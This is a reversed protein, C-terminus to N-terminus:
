IRVDKRVDGSQLDRIAQESNLIGGIMGFGSYYFIFTDSGTGGWLNDIVADYGGNLTDNDAEGYLADNGYEGYLGDNGAGGRLTDNGSGGYMQDNGADGYLQDNETGGSLYDNGTGGYLSDMGAEGYLYDNETGGSVYDNGSGGYLSDAGAEGYLYDNETGGELRDNGAGGYISDTGGEGYLYDNETGGELRDNGGGGYLSDTGAEGYLYDSENETGGELRDNGTGGYLSDVGGEGYLYDNEARGELLDHGTGGYLTDRGDGGILTDNGAHGKLTVPGSYASADIRDNGSGGNLEVQELGSFADTFGAGVLQTNNLTVQGSVYDLWKDGVTGHAGGILTDSGANGTLSDDGDGGDIVDNGAGGVLTDNGGKGRLTVKGSFPSFKFSDNGEGGALDVEEVSTLPETMNATSGSPLTLNLMLKSNAFEVTGSFTEELLDYGTGGEITDQGEGGTLLDNDAGGQLSDDGLGGILTDNGGGGILTADDQFPAVPEGDVLKDPDGGANLLDDGEGGDIEVKMKANSGFSIWVKDNGGLARVGAVEIGPLDVRTSTKRHGQTEVDVYAWPQGSEVDLKVVIQDMEGTADVVYTDEEGTSDTFNGEVNDTGGQVRDKGASHYITDSGTGGVLWDGDPSGHLHDDGEEGLVMDTFSTILGPMGNAAAALNVLRDQQEDIIEEAADLRAEAEGLEARQALTEQYLRELRDVVLEKGLLPANDIESLARALGALQRTRVQYLLGSITGLAEMQEILQLTATELTRVAEVGDDTIDTVHFDRIGDLLDIADLVGDLYGQQERVADEQVDIEAEIAGLESFTSSAGTGRSLEDEAYITDGAQGGLLFDAGAGGKILDEGAGGLVLDVGAGAELTDDGGGGILIDRNEGGILVDNGGIVSDETDGYMIEGLSGAGAELHDNGQGGYSVNAGANGHLRDDDDEGYLSDNGLGGHLTDNGTNGHLEDEGAGGYIVDHGAHGFILDDGASGVILDDGEGGSIEVRNVNFKGSAKIKDHGGLGDIRLLEIDRDNVDAPLTFRFSGQLEGAPGDFYSQDTAASDTTAFREVLFTPLLVGNADVLQQFRINDAEATGQVEIRDAHPGGFLQDTLEGGIQNLNVPFRDRGSQGYVTDAGAQGDLADDGDGGELRDEGDGGYLTDNGEDGLLWDNGLDGYLTDWGSGGELQDAGIGGYLEDEDDGGRLFDGGLEGFLFDRGADGHLHDGGRGGYLWDSETGGHIADVGTGGVLTDMGADGHLEDHDDGGDLSDDHKGGHLTDRGQGGVLTDNGDDGHLIDDGDGGDLQDAGGAGFLTDAGSGGQLTDGLGGGRLTDHGVGGDLLAGHTTAKLTDDGAGGLLTAPGGGAELTDNGAGGRIEVPLTLDSAISITDNGEGGDVVIREVQELEHTAAVSGDPYLLEVIVTHPQSGARLRVHEDGDATDGFIREGARPGINLRLEGHNVDGLVAEQPADSGSRFEFLQAKAIERRWTKSFPGIGVKVYADLFANLEGSLDFLRGQQFQGVVEQWYLKGDQDPDNLDLGLLGQIGGGVGAAAVAINVEAHAKLSGYVEAERVDQGSGDANLTDSVYFGNLILGPDQYDGAAFQRLGRTDFGFKFDAKGGIEGALRAGLPGIIPFFQSYDFHFDLNPMDYTVLPVDRGLLLAFARSPEDILPIRFGDLQEPISIAAPSVSTTSSGVAPQLKGRNDENRLKSVDLLLSGVSLSGTSSISDIVNSLTGVAAIFQHTDDTVYGFEEALRLLSLPEGALDSLVPLPKNLADVIDELPSIVHRIKELVPRILRNVVQGLDIRVDRFGVDQFVGNLNPSDTDVSWAYHFDTALSPFYDSAAVSTKLHLNVNATADLRTQVIDGLQGAMMEAWTLRGDDNGPDLIDITFSGEIGTPLATTNVDLQLFGLSASAAANALHARLEVQLEPDADTQVFFGHDRSVGFGLKLGFGATVRVDAQVDLGLAALGVDFSIGENITYEGGLQLEFSVESAVGSDFELHPPPLDDITVIIDNDDARDLLLNLGQPGLADFMVQHATAATLTQAAEFQQIVRNRLDQLFATARGLQDGILPLKVGLVKGDLADTLLQMVGDWGEVVLDFLGSLDMERIAEDFNPVQVDLTGSIDALNASLTIPDRSQDVTPFRVPLNVELSGQVEPARLHSSAGSLEHREHVGSDLGITITAPQGATGHDLRVSGGRVFVGLPGIAADLDINANVMVGLMLNSTDKIYFAPASSDSLDIVLGLRAHGEASVHLPTSASVDIFEELSGASFDDLDFSLNLDHERGFGSELDIELARGEFRVTTASGLLNGIRAIAENLTAPPDNVLEQRVAELQEGADILESLSRGLVPIETQFVPGSQVERLFDVIKLLGDVLHQVTLSELSDLIDLPPSIGVSLKSVDTIDTIVTVASEVPLEVGAIDAALRIPLNVSASGSVDASVDVPLGAGPNNIHLSAALDITGSGDVLGLEVVGLRASGNLSQMSASLTTDYSAERLSIWDWVTGGRPPTGVIVGDVSQDLIGLIAGAASSDQAAVKFAGGLAVSEAQQLRLGGTGADITVQVRGNSSVEITDIVEAITQENTFDVLFTTGDTLTVNLDDGAERNFAVNTGSVLSSVLTALELRPLAGSPTLDIDFLFRSSFTSGSQLTLPVPGDAFNLGALRGLDGGSTLRGLDLDLPLSPIPLNEAKLEFGSLNGAADVVEVLSLTQAAVDAYERLAAHVTKLTLDEVSSSGAASRNILPLVLERAESLGGMDLLREVQSTVVDVLVGKVSSKLDQWVTHWKVPDGRYRDWGAKLASTLDTIRLIGLKFAELLAHIQGHDAAHALPASGPVGLEDLVRRQVVPNFPLSGHESSEHDGKGKTVPVLTFREDRTTQEGINRTFQGISSEEPVTADGGEPEEVDEFWTQNADPLNGVFDTFSLIEEGAIRLGRHQNVTVATDLDNGYFVVPEGVLRDAFANPDRVRTGDDFTFQSSNPDITYVFDLGDNLDLLLSNRQDSYKHAGNIDVPEIAACEAATVSTSCDRLFDYTALLSQATPVFQAIFAEKPNPAANIQDRHIAGDLPNNPDPGAIYGTDSAQLLEWARSAMKSFVVRYANEISFDDRLANWAKSAGRHPVGLMIFDHIKPLRNEPACDTAGGLCANYTDSQIYTRTILGGTSHAIVDVADLVQGPHKAHWAQMAQQLTYGLYDVGYKFVNDTISNATDSTPGTTLGTISGDIEADSTPSPGPPMRWDYAVTFLNEGKTYGAEVLSNVVDTYTNVLPDLQMKEPELGRRTFWENASEQNAFTGFIGPIVIVPRAPTFDGVEANPTPDPEIIASPSVTM